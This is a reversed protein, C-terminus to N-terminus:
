LLLFEVCPAHRSRCMDGAMVCLGVGNLLYLTLLTVPQKTHCVAPLILQICYFLAAFLLFLLLLPYKSYKSHRVQVSIFYVTGM